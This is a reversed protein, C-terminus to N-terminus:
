SPESAVSCLNFGTGGMSASSWPWQWPEQVMGAAVPNREIYMTVRDFEASNRIWHDFSEDQWFPQGGRGLIKNAQRATTGKIWKTTCRLEKHPELLVHVHNPMVVFAHLGCYEHRESKRLVEVVCAAIKSDRLWLPGHSATDLYRDLERFRRGEPLSANHRLKTRVAEPLSGSLRWTVFIDKGPPQWHPLNREYYMLYFVLM